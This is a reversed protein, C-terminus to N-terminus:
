RCSHQLGVSGCRESVLRCQECLDFFDDGMEAADAAAGVYAVDEAGSQVCADRVLM